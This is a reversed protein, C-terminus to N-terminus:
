RSPAVCRSLRACVCVCGAMGTGERNWGDAIGVARGGGTEVGADGMKQDGFVEVQRATRYWGNGRKEHAARLERERLVSDWMAPAMVDGGLGRHFARLEGRGVFGGFWFVSSAHLRAPTQFLSFPMPLPSPCNLGHFVATGPFFTAGAIWGHSAREQGGGNDGL